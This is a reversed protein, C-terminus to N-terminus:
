VQKEEHSDVGLPAHEAIEDFVSETLYLHLKDRLMAPGEENRISILADIIVEKLFVEEETLIQLQTAIPNFVLNAFIVGYFTTILAVAIAPGIEHPSNIQQFMLVLGIITGVMGWAPSLEGARAILQQGNAHRKRMADIDMTMIKRIMKEDYGDIVLRLGRKIFPDDTKQMEKELGVVIGETRSTRSLHVLTNIFTQIPIEKRRFTTHLVKFMNLVEKAGFGILLSAFLGGAVIMFSSMSIFALMGNIGGAFYIALFIIGIGLVIGIPTFIDKRFM